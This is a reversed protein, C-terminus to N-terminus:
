TSSVPSADTNFMGFFAGLEANGRKIPFLMWKSPPGEYVRRISEALNGTRSACERSAACLKSYKEVQEDTAQASYLFNGPPNVGIMVSRQVARPHRGAYIM